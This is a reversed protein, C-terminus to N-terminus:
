NNAEIYAILAKVMQESSQANDIIAILNNEHFPPFNQNKILQKTLEKQKDEPTSYPSAIKLASLLKDFLTNM